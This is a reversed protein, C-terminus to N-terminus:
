VALLTGFLATAHHGPKDQSSGDLLDPMCCSCTMRFRWGKLLEAAAHRGSLKLGPVTEGANMSSLLKHATLVEGIRYRCWCLRKSAVQPKCRVQAAHWCAPPEHQLQVELKNQTCLPRCLAVSGVPRQARSPGWKPLYKPLWGGRRPCACRRRGGDRMSSGAQATHWSPPLRQAM